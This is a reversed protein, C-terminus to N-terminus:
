MSQKIKRQLICIISGWVVPSMLRNGFVAHDTVPTSELTSHTTPGKMIDGVTRSVEPRVRPFLGVVARQTIVLRGSRGVQQRVRPRTVPQHGLAHPMQILQHGFHPAFLM